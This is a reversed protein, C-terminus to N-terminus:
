HNSQKYNQKRVCRQCITGRQCVHEAFNKGHICEEHREREKSSAKCTNGRQSPRKQLYQGDMIAKQKAYINGEHLNSKAFARDKMSAKRCINEIENKSKAAFKGEMTARTWINGKTQSRKYM